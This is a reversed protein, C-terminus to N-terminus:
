SATIFGALGQTGAEHLSTATVEVTHALGELRPDHRPLLPDVHSCFLVMAMAEYLMLRNTEARQDSSSSVGVQRLPDSPNRDLLDGRQLGFAHCNMPGM